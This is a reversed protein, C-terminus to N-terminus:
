RKGVGKKSAMPFLEMQDTSCFIGCDWSLGGEEKVLEWEIERLGLGESEPGKFLTYGIREELLAMEEFREPFLRRIKKWYGKGGKRKFRSILVDERRM